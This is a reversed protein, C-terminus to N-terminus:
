SVRDYWYGPLRSSHAVAIVHVVDGIVEYVVSYPFRHVLLSAIFMRM